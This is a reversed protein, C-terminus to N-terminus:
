IIIITFITVSHLRSSRGSAISSLSSHLTHTLSLSISLSFSNSFDMSAAHCSVCVCVCM